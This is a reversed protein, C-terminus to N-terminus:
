YIKNNLYKELLIQAAAFPSIENTSVAKKTSDLLKVIEPHNYFTTKLKENITELM